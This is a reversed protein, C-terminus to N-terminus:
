KMNIWKKNMHFLELIKRTQFMLLYHNPSSKEMYNRQLYYVM